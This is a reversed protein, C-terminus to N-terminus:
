HNNFAGNQPTIVVICSSSNVDHTNNFAGNQPTIVVTQKGCLKVVENNFAGNQPTIVVLSCNLHMGTSNNFAGNQPTIVVDMTRLPSTRVNNFAGNQPTIVVINKNKYVGHSNNFTGNQPTIVVGLSTKNRWFFNNFAGNQPTVCDLLFSVQIHSYCLDQCFVTLIEHFTLSLTHLLASANRHHNRWPYLQRLDCSPHWSPAYLLKRATMIYKYASPYAGGGGLGDSFPVKLCIVTPLAAIAVGGSGM